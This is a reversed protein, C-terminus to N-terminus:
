YLFFFFSSSPGIRPIFSTSDLIMEFFADVCFLFFIIMTETSENNIIMEIIIMIANTLLGSPSPFTSPSIKPSIDQLYSM